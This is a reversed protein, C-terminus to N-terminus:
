RSFRSSAMRQQSLQHKETEENRCSGCRCLIIIVRIDFVISIIISYCMEYGNSLSRASASFMLYLCSQSATTDEEEITIIHCRRSANIHDILAALTSSKGSGTVGTILVLGREEMAIEEMFFSLFFLSM